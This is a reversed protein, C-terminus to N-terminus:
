GGRYGDIVAQLARYRLLLLRGLPWFLAEGSPRGLRVPLCVLFLRDQSRQPLRRRTRTVDGRNRGGDAHARQLRSVRVVESSHQASHQCGFVSRAAARSSRINGGFGSGGGRILSM